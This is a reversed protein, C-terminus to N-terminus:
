RAPGVPPVPTHQAPAGSDAPQSSTSAPTEGNKKSRRARRPQIGFSILGNNKFGLKGKLVSTIRDHLDQGSQELARRTQVAERLQSRLSEQLSQQAKAQAIVDDLHQQEQALEPMEPVIPKLKRNLLDWKGIRTSFTTSM